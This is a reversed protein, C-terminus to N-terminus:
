FGNQFHRTCAEPLPERVSEALGQNTKYPM